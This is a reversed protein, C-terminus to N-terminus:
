GSTQFRLPVWAGRDAPGRCALISRRAPEGIVCANTATPMGDDDHRCISDVGDARDTMLVRLSEMDLNRHSALETARDVRRLSSSSPAEADAGALPGELCHNTRVLPTCALDRRVTMTASCELEIAGGEDALLFTHAAVRPAHQVVAAAEERDRCRIARHLLSMYGVGPRIGQVKINTTGTWIGHINMGILTPAGAVTVSWTEPGELPTRHVAVVSDVDLPHLDWTQGVLINGDRSASSPVAISTCGEDADAELTVVDRMDSYNAAAYLVDAPVGAAAATSEHEQWGEPDWQELIKLSSRAAGIMDDFSGRDRLGFYAEAASRRRDIMSAIEDSLADGVGEGLEAFTGEVKVVPLEL